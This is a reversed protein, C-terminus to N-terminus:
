TDISFLMTSSVSLFRTTAKTQALISEADSFDTM